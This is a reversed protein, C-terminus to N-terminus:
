AGGRSLLGRLRSRPTAVPTPADAVDCTVATAVPGSRAESAPDPDPRSLAEEWALLDARHVGENVRGAADRVSGKLPIGLARLKARVAARDVPEGPTAKTLRDALTKVHVGPAQGILNWMVTILPDVPAEPAADPVPEAPRVPSRREVWEAWGDLQDRPVFAAFALVWGAILGVAVWGGYFGVAWVSGVYLLWAVDARGRAHLWRGPGSVGAWLAGGIGALGPTEDDVLEDEALEEDHVDDPTPEPDSKRLSFYTM